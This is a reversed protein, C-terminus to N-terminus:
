NEVQAHKVPQFGISAELKLSKVFKGAGTQSLIKQNHYHYYLIYIPLLPIKPSVGM